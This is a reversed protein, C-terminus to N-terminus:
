LQHKIWFITYTVDGNGATPLADFFTQLEQNDNVGGFMAARQINVLFSYQPGSELTNTNSANQSYTGCLDTNLYSATNTLHLHNWSGSYPITSNQSIKFYVCVPIIYYSYDTSILTYPNSADMIIFDAEPIIVVTKLLYNPPILYGM